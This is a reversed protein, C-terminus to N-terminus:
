PLPPGERLSSEGPNDMLLAVPFTRLVEAAYLTGRAEITEGTLVNIWINPAGEPLLLRTDEWIGPGLPYEGQSVFRTCFRPVLTVAWKGAHRRGFAVLHKERSGKATLPLYEGDRFLDSSSRRANLAKRVLHLKVRGDAPSELLTSPHVTERVSALLEARHEFNVPRRNDPDALNLDWLETGQYFDPIGPATIKLLTQALSNIVGYHAIKRQFPLFDRLFPNREPGQFIREVFRLFGAEYALDPEIWNTYIKAERIAKVMHEAIRRPFDPLEEQRFPWAGLLTQYLYYEGNRSPTEIGRIRSRHRRNISRWTKFREEWERPIESLVNMRARVDEGRKTDHTSTANQAHPWHSARNQFFRHFDAIGTGFAGPDGGVENVSLLKAHVYFVTDEFGKAMLPGTFQQFRMLFALRERRDRDTHHDEFELLLVRGLYDIEHVLEPKRQRAAAIGASLTARDQESISLGRVYTRYVPFTALVERIARRLGHLTMDDGRRDRSSIRKLRHALNDMDGVMFHDIVTEKERWVLEPFPPRKGVVANYIRDFEWTNDRMCFLGNVRNLFDYGTTGEVPWAEPLPEDTGLIKEVSLYVDGSLARLTELYGSPDHLGDIHDIRLGTFIGRAVFDRVLRHCDDFVEPSEMRLSILDNIAFFRRYNIEESAVKWYSLRYHQEHLLSALRSSARRGAEPAFAGLSARIAKRIVPNSEYLEWLIQRIFRVQADRDGTPTRASFTNLLQLVGTFKIRDPHDQGLERHIAATRPQLFTAYSEIRVPLRIGGRRVGFGDPGFEVTIEGQEISERRSKDLVPVLLRRRLSDYVHGWEIDFHSAYPSDPGNQLVDALKPNEPTFAMHNPVIDQLWGFGSRRSADVLAHFDADSGLEPNLANQDIVDYGHLSGTRAAFIPSAYLDSIGLDQLYPLINQADRFTFGSHFQIRYTSDPIRRM